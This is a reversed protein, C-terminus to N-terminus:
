FAFGGGFEAYPADDDISYVVGGYASINLISHKFGATLLLDSAAEATDSLDCVDMGLEIWSHDAVKFNLGMSIGLKRNAQSGDAPDQYYSVGTYGGMYKPMLIDCKINHRRIGMTYTYDLGVLVKSRDMWPHLIEERDTRSFLFSMDSRGNDFVLKYDPYESLGNFYVQGSAEKVKMEVPASLMRHNIQAESIAAYQKMAMTTGIVAATQIVPDNTTIYLGSHWDYYGHSLGPYWLTDIYLEASSDPNLIADAVLLAGAIGTALIAANNAAKVGALYEQSDWTGLLKWNGKDKNGGYISIFGDQFLFSSDDTSCISVSFDANSTDFSTAGAMMQVNSDAKVAYVSSGQIYTESDKEPIAVLKVQEVTSMCSSLLCLMVATCLLALAKRVPFRDTIM